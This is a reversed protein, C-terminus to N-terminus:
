KIMELIDNMSNHIIFYFNIMMGIMFITLSIVIGITMWFIYDTIKKTRNAKIAKDRGDKISNDIKNRLEEILRETRYYRSKM